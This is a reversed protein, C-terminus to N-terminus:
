VLPPPSPPSSNIMLTQSIICVLSEFKTSKLWDRVFEEWKMFFMSCVRGSKHERRRRCANDWMCLKRVRGLDEELFSTSHLLTFDFHWCGSSHVLVRDEACIILILLRMRAKEMLVHPSLLSPFADNVQWGRWIAYDAVGQCEAGVAICGKETM